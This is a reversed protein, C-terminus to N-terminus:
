IKLKISLNQTNWPLTPLGTLSSASFKTTSNLIQVFIVLQKRLYDKLQQLLMLIFLQKDGIKLGINVM